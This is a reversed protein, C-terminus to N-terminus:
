LTSDRLRLGKLFVAFDRSLGAGIGLKTEDLRTVKVGFIWKGLTFGSVGVLLGGLFSAAFATIIVDLFRAGEGEFILFFEDATAPAIAYFAIGFLSFMLLGNLTTDLMRAGYRRWPTPPYALWGASSLRPKVVHEEINSPSDIKVTTTSFNGWRENSDGSSHSPTIYERPSTKYEAASPQDSPSPLSLQSFPIWSSNNVDRVLTGAGILGSTALKDLKEASFPGVENEGDHYYYM